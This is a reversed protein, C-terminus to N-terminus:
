AEQVPTTTGAQLAWLDSFAGKSAILSDFTGEEVVGGEGLVVIRDANRITSLRHAIVIATRGRTFADLAAQMARETETDVSATAEDFIMIPANRLVARAVAVRARQGGSLQVGREGVLTSLGDHLSAVFDGLQAVQVAAAVAEDTAQPMAYAINERLTGHFLYSSQSVLGVCRRLEALPLQRVDVGDVRVAGSQPDYLRLLLKMLTSKGAGTAGAVGIFEGAKVRLNLGRLVEDGRGYGFHINDFHVAGLAHRPPVQVTGSDTGTGAGAGAGAAATGAGRTGGPLHQTANPAPDAIIAQRALLGFTRAASARAREYDDMVQGIRTLPWLVRQILMSFLVLNGVSIFATNGSLIQYAGVLIVGAFGLAVVMRILPVYPTSISIADYNAARYERSAQTVRALEFDEAGFAKIVPMGSINNELRSSLAGVSRRVRRYRPQVTHHYWISCVVLIPLPWLGILALQWSTIFLTVGSFAAMAALQLLTNLGTNLFRELQNVDDNLMAMTEGLRNNEFFSMELGQLHAYVDVRLCHQTDQALRQFGRQYLWQFLSEFGFVLVVLLALVVAMGMPTGGSLSSIWGPADGAVTDIVWGVMVPPFLDLVKNLVSWLCALLLRSRFRAMYAFLQTMANPALEVTADYPMARTYTAGSATKGTSSHQQQQQQRM